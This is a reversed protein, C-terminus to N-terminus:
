NELAIATIKKSANIISNPNYDLNNNVPLKPM